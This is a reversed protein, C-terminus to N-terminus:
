INAKGYIKVRRHSVLEKVKVKYDSQGCKSKIKKGVMHDIIIMETKSVTM